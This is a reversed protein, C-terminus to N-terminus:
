PYLKLERWLQRAQLQRPQNMKLRIETARGVPTKGRVHIKREIRFHENWKDKRPDFLRQEKGTEPDEGTLYHWKSRNCHQCSLAYNSTEDKGGEHRPRIHEIHFAYGAVDEPAQCYECRGQARKRVIAKEQETAM